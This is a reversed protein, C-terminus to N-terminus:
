PVRISLPGHKKWGLTLLWTRAEGFWTLGRLVNTRERWGEFTSASSCPDFLERLWEGHKRANAFVYALANRVERPTKLARAFYRDALVAGSRKWLANLARALRVGFGKMGRALAEKDEAEGILHLHNGQASFHVLRLGSEEAGHTSARLVDRLVRQEASGRLSPLGETIRLVLHLPHRRKHEPRTTHPVLARAGAPKRGAGRRAGGRQPFQMEVQQARAM